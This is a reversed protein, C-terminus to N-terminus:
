PLDVGSSLVPLWKAATRAVVGMPEFRRINEPFFFSFLHFTISLWILIVPWRKLPHQLATRFGTSMTCYTQLGRREQIILVTDAAVVYITLGLWSYGAPRLKM